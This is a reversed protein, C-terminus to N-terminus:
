DYQNLLVGLCDFSNVAEWACTILVTLFIVLASVVQSITCSSFNQAHPLSHHIVQM